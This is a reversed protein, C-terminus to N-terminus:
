VSNYRFVSSQIHQWLAGIIISILLISVSISFLLSVVLLVIFNASHKYPYFNECKDEEKSCCNMFTAQMIIAFTTWLFFLPGVLYMFCLMLKVLHPLLFVLLIIFLSLCWIVSQSLLWIELGFVESCTTLEAIKGISYWNEVQQEIEFLYYLIAISSILAGGIRLKSNEEM